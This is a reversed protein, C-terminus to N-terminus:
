KIAQEVQHQRAKGTARESVSDSLVASSEEERDNKLDRLWSAKRLQPCDKIGMFHLNKKWASTFLSEEASWFSPGIRCTRGRDSDRERFSTYQGIQILVATMNDRSGSALAKKLLGDLVVDHDRPHAM